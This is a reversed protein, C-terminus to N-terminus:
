KDAQNTAMGMFFSITAVGLATSLTAESMYSWFVVSWMLVFLVNKRYKKLPIFFSAFLLLLGIIGGGAYYFVWQNHPFLPEAAHPFHVAYQYGSEGAVDGFGVGYLPSSNGVYVGAMISSLRGADSSEGLRGEKFEVYDWESYYFKASLSPIMKIAILPIIIMAILILIGVLFQRKQYIWVIVAIFATAYFALLGSRVALLHLTEVCLLLWISWFVRQFLRKKPNEEHTFFLFYASAISSFALLLSFRIHDIPKIWFLKPEISQGHQLTFIWQETHLIYDINMTICVMGVWFILWYHLKKYQETTIPPLLFFVLPLGFFPLLVRLESLWAGTNRSYLGTIGVFIFLTFPALVDYRTRLNAAREPFALWYGVGLFVLGFTSMSLFFKSCLMSLMLVACLFVTTSQTYKQLIAKM